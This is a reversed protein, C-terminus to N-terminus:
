IQFPDIVEYDFNTLQRKIETESHNKGLFLIGREGPKLTAEINKGIWRERILNMDYIEEGDLFERIRDPHDADRLTEDLIKSTPQGRLNELHNIADLNGGLKKAYEVILDLHGPHETIQFKCGAEVLRRIPKLFNGQSNLYQNQNAYVGNYGDVYVSSYPNDQHDIVILEAIADYVPNLSENRKMVEERETGKLEKVIEPSCDHILKYHDIKKKNEM